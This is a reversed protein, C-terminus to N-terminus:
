KSGQLERKVRDILSSEYDRTKVFADSIRIGSDKLDQPRFENASYLLIPLARFRPDARLRRAFALGDMGPLGHDLIVVQVRQSGLVRMAAGADSVAVPQAFPEILAKLVDRMSDDDEVVLVSPRADEVGSPRPAVPLTVGFITGTGDPAPQFGIQGGHLETIAKAISLGLGTGGSKRSDAGGAQQFRGFIRSAFEAPIGPGYDRVSVTVDAGDVHASVEVAAAGPSFKIANSVLNTFVQILRDSDGIIEVDAVRGLELRVGADKALGDLGTLTGELVSRLRVRDRRIAAHGGDIKEIDLIDNILRILRDTNSLAIRLLERGKSALEGGAGGLLLGLAGRLSTLPTRLEHSVTSVFDAKLSDLEKLKVIDDQLQRERTAISQALRDFTHALRAMEKNPARHAYPLRAAEYRGADLAEAAQIVQNLAQSVVRMMLTLLLIFLFVAAVRLLFSEWEGMAAARESEAQLEIVDRRIARLVTSHQARMTDFYEAGDVVRRAGPTGPAFASHGSRRREAINPAVISRDWEEVSAILADINALIAREKAVLARLISADTNFTRYAIEYRLVMEEAGTLVFGRQASSMVSLSSFLRTASVEGQHLREMEANRQQTERQVEDVALRAAFLWTLAILTGAAALQATLPLRRWRSLPLSSPGTKPDSLDV